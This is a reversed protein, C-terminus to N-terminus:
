GMVAMCTVFDDTPLLSGVLGNDFGGVIRFSIDLSTCSLHMQQLLGGTDLFLFQYGRKGYKGLLLKPKSAVLIWIKANELHSCSFASQFLFESHSDDSIKRINYDNSEVLYFGNELGDVREISFYLDYGGISGACGFPKTGNSRVFFSDRLFRNIQAASIRGNSSFAKASQRKHSIESFDSTRLDSFVVNSLASSQNGIEKEGHRLLLNVTYQLDLFSM